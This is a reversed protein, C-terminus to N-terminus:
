GDIGLCEYVAEKCDGRSDSYQIVALAFCYGALAGCAPIAASQYVFAKTAKSNCASFDTACSKTKSMKTTLDKKALYATIEKINKQNLVPHKDKLINLQLFLDSFDDKFDKLSLYKTSILNKSIYDDNFTNNQNIANKLIFKKYDLNDCVTEMKKMSNVYENSNFLIDLQEETTLQVEENNEKSCSLLISFSMFLLVPVIIYYLKKMKLKKKLNTIM